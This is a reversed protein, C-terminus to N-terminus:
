IHILSLASSPCVIGIPAGIASNSVSSDGDGESVFSDGSGSDAAGDTPVVPYRTLFRAGTPGVPPPGSPSGVIDSVGVGAGALVSEGTVRFWLCDLLM